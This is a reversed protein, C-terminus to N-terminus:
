DDEPVHQLVDDMVALEFSDDDFSLERLAGVRLDAEPVRARALEIAAGGIDVGAAAAFTGRDLLWRLFGGTGCGADLLRAGPQRLREGLLSETIRRMGLYWWHRDGVEAIREYYDRPVGPALTADSM